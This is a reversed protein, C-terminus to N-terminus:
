FRKIYDQVKAKQFQANISPDVKGKAHPRDGDRVQTSTTQSRGWCAAMLLLAFSSSAALVLGAARPRRTSMTQDEESGRSPGRGAGQRDIKFYVVGPGGSWSLM